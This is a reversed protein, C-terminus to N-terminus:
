NKVSKSKFLNIILNNIHDLKQIESSSLNSDVMQMYGLRDVGSKLKPIIGIDKGFDLNLEKLKFDSKIKTDKIKTIDENQILEKNSSIIRVSNIQNPKLNDGLTLLGLSLDVQIQYLDLGTSMKVLDPLCTAGIRAGIEIVFVDGNNDLILDVNSPGTYQLAKIAEETLQYLNKVEEENCDLPMSHGVPVNNITWDTHVFVYNVKGNTSIVQAGFEIGDIFEEAIFYDERSFLNVKNIASESQSIDKIITIGRSGSSDVPKIILPSGIIEFAKKIDNKNECKLYRPQKINANWISELCFNIQYWYLIKM